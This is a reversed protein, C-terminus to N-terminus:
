KAVWTRPALMASILPSCEGTLKKLVEQYLQRRIQPQYRCWAWSSRGVRPIGQWRWKGGDAEESSYRFAERSGWFGLAMCKVPLLTFALFKLDENGTSVASPQSLFTYHSLEKGNGVEWALGGVWSVTVNVWLWVCLWACVAAFLLPIPLFPLTCWVAWSHLKFSKVRCFAFFFFCM